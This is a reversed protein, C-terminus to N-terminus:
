YEKPNWSFVTLAAKLARYHSEHGSQAISFLVRASSPLPQRLPTISPADGPKSVVRSGLVVM